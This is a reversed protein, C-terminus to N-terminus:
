IRGGHGVVRGASWTRSLPDRGGKGGGVEM